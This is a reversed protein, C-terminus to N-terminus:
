LKEYEFEPVIDKIKLVIKDEDDHEIYSKLEKLHNVLDNKKIFNEYAIFIEKNKTTIYKNNIFLEEYLKEGKRLGTYKIELGDDDHNEKVKNGSLTIMKKALNKIKVPKGMNLVFVEGGTSIISTELILGVAESILMFFRTIEPHTVTIPGGDKIQKRFLPIVSGSSDLVNGFRVISFITRIKENDNAYAQVCIEAIRKSAGMINTPNVAKDTSILLFKKVNSALAIEIVNLTGFVNNKVSDVINEEVIPVHKYAAAHFVYQPSHENFISKLRESDNINSLIAVIDFKNKKQDNIRVLETQVRYLNFESHDILVIKKINLNSLQFCLESGISGGAGTVLIIEDNFQNRIEDLNIKIERDLIDKVDINKIDEFNVTGSVLDKLSPLIKIEIDLSDFYNLIQKRKDFKIQPNAILIFEIENNIKLNEINEIPYVKINNIIRGITNPDDDIFAIPEYEQSSRISQLIEFALSGSGYIVIKKKEKKIASNQILLVVSFRSLLILLSFTIVQLLIGQCLIIFSISVLFYNIILISIAYLVISYFLIKLDQIGFFRNITKYINFLYFFLIFIINSFVFFIIENIPILLYMEILIISSASALISLLIDTVVVFIIKNIRSLNLLFNIM